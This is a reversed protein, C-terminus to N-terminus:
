CRCRPVANIARELEPLILVLGSWKIFSVIIRVRDASDMESALARILNPEGRGNILLDSQSLPVEPRRVQRRGLGSDGPTDVLRLIPKEAATVRDDPRAASSQGTRSLHDDVFDIVANAVEIRESEAATALREELLNALYIALAAPAEAPDLKARDVLQGATGAAELRLELAETILSEYLGPELLPGDGADVMVQGGDSNEDTYLSAAM